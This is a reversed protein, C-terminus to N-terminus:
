PKYEAEMASALKDSIEEAQAFTYNYPVQGEIWSQSTIKELTARLRENEAELAQVKDTQHILSDWVSDYEKQSKKAQAELEEIRADREALTADKAALLPKVAQLQAEAVDSLLVMYKRVGGYGGCVEQIQKDSIREVETQEALATLVGTALKSVQLEGLEQFIVIEKTLTREVAERIKSM